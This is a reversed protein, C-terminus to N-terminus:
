NLSDIVDLRCNFLLSELSDLSDVDTNWPIDDCPSIAAFHHEVEGRLSEEGLVLTLVEGEDAVELLVADELVFGDATFFKIRYDKVSLLVAMYQQLQSLSEVHNLDIKVPNGSLHLVQKIRRAPKTYESCCTYEKSRSALPSQSVGQERPVLSVTPPRVLLSGLAGLSPCDAPLQREGMARM